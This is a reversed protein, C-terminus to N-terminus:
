LEQQADNLRYYLDGVHSFAQSSVLFKFLPGPPCRRVLNVASYLEQAHVHGQPNLKALEHMITIVTQELSNRSRSNGGWVQDLADVDPIAIAMREDFAATVVQKLMAFVIGGDAGVLVTRIWERNTRRKEAQIIVEGPNKGKRLHITSGPILGQSIYWERLGYVYHSPRVVWGSYKQSSDGDVLTFQVRPSEIATPFMRHIRRTLPITGSRWHPYTLHFVVENTKTGEEQVEALEDDLQKEISLMADSLVSRDYEVPNWRLYLPIERVNEPELRKLFWLVEGKPGVEDFRADEQIAFNLSFETL